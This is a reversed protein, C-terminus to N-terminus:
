PLPERFVPFQAVLHVSYVLTRHLRHCTSNDHAPMPTATNQNVPVFLLILRKGIWLFEPHFIDHWVYAGYSIRGLWRLSRIKLIETFSTNEVPACELILLGSLIDVALLGWTFKWTPYVYNRTWIHESPFLVIWAFVFVMAIPFAIRAIRLLPERAASRLILAILGGMFLADLRFPTARYLIENDLMWTPLLHQGALRMALCVPVTVACIWSLKRRDRIWFVIWPWVLYFQEEVCLSWFHGLFLIIKQEALHGILNFIPSDRFPTAQITHAFSGHMTARTLQGSWGIGTGIGICSQSLQSFRWCLGTISRSFEFSRRVYFNRVRYADDRSDFLIGTILFGSLVFFLDVGTWGWPLQLYHHCFVMLFAIARLGDLAPYFNRNEPATRATNGTVLIADNIAPRGTNSM